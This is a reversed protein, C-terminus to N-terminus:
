TSLGFIAIVVMALGVLIIGVAQKWHEHRSALILAILCQLTFFVAFVRSATAVATLVDTVLVVAIAGAALIPFTLRRPIAENSLDLLVDSRSSITTIAASAQSGIALALILLPLVPSAVAGIQVVATPGLNPRVQAFLLLAAAPFLVFAVTAVIQADRMTRIRREASYERGIYRSAEFGQVLAFFGLIQRAGQTTLPPNYDPLVWNGAVAVQLNYAAFGIIIASVAALNFATTRESLENFKDLGRLFGILGLAVLVAVAIGSGSLAGGDFNFPAVVIFIVVGGMLQLYYAVNVVSAVILAGQSTNSLNRLIGKETSVPEFYRINYRMVWGTAYGLTCLGAMTLPSDIGTIGVIIPTMAVFGIDMIDGLPLVMAQYRESNQVRSSYLVVSLGILTALVLLTIVVM